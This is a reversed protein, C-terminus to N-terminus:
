ICKQRFNLTALHFLQKYSLLNPIIIEFEFFFLTYSIDPNEVTENITNTTNIIGLIFTHM